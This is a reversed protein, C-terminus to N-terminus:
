HDTLLYNAKRCRDSCYRRRGRVPQELPRRCWACRTETLQELDTGALSLAREPKTLPEGAYARAWTGATSRLASVWEDRERGRVTALVAQWATMFPEGAARREALDQRAAALPTSM